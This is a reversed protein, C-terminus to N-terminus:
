SALRQKMIELHHQVHGGIIYAQSRVTFECDSAIGKRLESNEPLRRLFYINAQRLHGFEAVLDALKVNQYDLQEVYPEHDFGAMPTPDNCAMRHLRYGFVKEGDILHGILQKITWTYPEHCRSAEPEGVKALTSELEALQSTLFELIDASHVKGVYGAYFDEYEDAAPKGSIQM